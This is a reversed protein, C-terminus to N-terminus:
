RRKYEPNPEQILALSYEPEEASYANELSQIALTDWSRQEDTSDTQQPIVTILLQTEPAMEFPEDLCIREGDFHARLTIPSM